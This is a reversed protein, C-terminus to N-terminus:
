CMRMVIHLIYFTFMKLCIDTDVGKKINYHKYLVVIYKIFGEPLTLM